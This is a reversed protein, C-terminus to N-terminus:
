CKRRPPMNTDAPPEADIKEKNELSAIEQKTHDEPFEGYAMGGKSPPLFSNTLHATISNGASNKVIKNDKFAGVGMVSVPDGEAHYSKTNDNGHKKAFDVGVGANFLVARQKHAHGLSYALTGGLSHGTFEIEYGKPVVNVLGKTWKDERKYRESDEVKGKLIHKDTKLWDDQTLSGRYAVVVKKLADHRKQFMLSVM